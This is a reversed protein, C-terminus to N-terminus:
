CITQGVPCVKTVGAPPPVVVTPAAQPQVVVTKDDSGGCSGLALPFGLVIALSLVSLTRM